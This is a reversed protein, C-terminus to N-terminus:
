DKYPNAAPCLAQGHRPPAPTPYDKRSTNLDRTQLKQKPPHTEDRAVSMFPQRKNRKRTEEEGTALQGDWQMDVMDHRISLLELSWDGLVLRDAMQLIQLMRPKVLRGDPARRRSIHSTKPYM